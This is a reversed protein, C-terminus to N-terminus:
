RALVRNRVIDALRTIDDDAHEATFSLRLRATGIPVTPSPGPLPTLGALLTWLSCGPAGTGDSNPDSAALFDVIELYAARM